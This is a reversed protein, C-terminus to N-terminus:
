WTRDSFLSPIEVGLAFMLTLPNISEPYSYGSSLSKIEASGGWDGGFMMGFSLIDRWVGVNLGIQTALGLSNVSHARGNNNFVTGENPNFDQFGGASILSSYSSFTSLGLFAEIGVSIWEPFLHYRYGGTFGYRHTNLYSSGGNALDRSTHHFQYGVGGWGMHDGFRVKLGADLAFGPGIQDSFFSRDNGLTQAAYLLRARGMMYDPDRTDIIYYSNPKEENKAPAVPPTQPSAPPSAPAIPDAM